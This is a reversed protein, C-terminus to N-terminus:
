VTSTHAQRRLHPLSFTEHAGTLSDVVQVKSGDLLEGTVEALQDGPFRFVQGAFASPFDKRTVVELVSPAPEECRDQREIIPILRDFISSQRDNLSLPLLLRAQARSLAVNVLREGLEAAFFSSSADVPDFVVTHRESGQARHVTSVRCQRLGAKKLWAKILSRQARYPTLVVLQEPPLGSQFLRDVMECIWKASEYRIYGRYKQSWTAGDGIDQIHIRRGGIGSVDAIRRAAAWAPNGAQDAAVRLRGGYFGHSVVRCIPEAMRSQEELMVQYARRGEPLLDFLSRGLWRAAAPHECQVIPALQQPDGACLAAKAVPLLTLGYALSVQSAEDFVLLDFPAAARLAEIHFAASTTTLAVLRYKRLVEQAAMKMQKRLNAIKQKWESYAQAEAKDPRQAELQLLAEMFRGDPSPILHRRHEYEGVHFGTGLRVCSRRLQSNPAHGESELARDVAVLAQDVALNTTSLLIIRAEPRSILMEALLWGLTTTKGTGPPGWLFSLAGATLGFAERQKERARKWRKPTLPKGAAFAPERQLHEWRNLCRNAWAEGSWCGLLGELYRPPYLYLSDGSGPPPQTCFHLTLLDEEPVVTLVEGVGAPKGPWWAQAEELSEDLPRSQRRGADEDSSVWVKWAGGERATRRVRVVVARQSEALEAQIASIIEARADGM